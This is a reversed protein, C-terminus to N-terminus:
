IRWLPPVIDHYKFKLSIIHQNYSRINYKNTVIQNAKSIAQKAKDIYNMIQYCTSLIVYLKIVFEKESYKPEINCLIEETHTIVENCKHEVFLMYTIKNAEIEYSM